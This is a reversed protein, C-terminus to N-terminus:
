VQDCVASQDFRDIDEIPICLSVPRLAARRCAGPGPVQAAQNRHQLLDVEVVVQVPHSRRLDEREQRRLEVGPPGDPEGGSVRPRPARRNADFSGLWQERTQTENSDSPVETAAFISYRFLQPISKTSVEMLARM